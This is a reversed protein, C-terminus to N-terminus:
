DILIKKYEKKEKPPVTITLIGDEFKASINSFDFKTEPVIFYTKFPSRKIRNTSVIACDEPLNPAKYGDVTSVYVKNEDTTISIDEKKYGSVALSIFVTGDKSKVMETPPFQPVAYKEDSSFMADLADLLDNYYM